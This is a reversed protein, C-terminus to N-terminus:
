IAIYLVVVCMCLSRKVCKYLHLYNELSLYSVQYVYGSWGHKEIDINTSTHMGLQDVYVLLLPVPDNIARDVMGTNWREMMGSNWEMTGGNWEVTGREM